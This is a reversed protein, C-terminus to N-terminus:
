RRTYGRETVARRQAWLILRKHWLGPGLQGACDRRDDSPYGKLVWGLSCIRTQCVQNLLDVDV